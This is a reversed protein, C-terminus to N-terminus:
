FNHTFKLFFINFYNYAWSKVINIYSFSNIAGTRKVYVLQTFKNSVLECAYNPYFHLKMNIQPIDM